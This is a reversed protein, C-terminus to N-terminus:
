VVELLREFIILVPTVSHTLTSLALFLAKKATWDPINSRGGEVKWNPM